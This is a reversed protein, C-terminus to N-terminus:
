FEEELGVGSLAYRVQESDFGRTMLFRMQRTKEKFKEQPSKAKLVLGFRKERVSQALSFWDIECMAFLESILTNDLGKQQLQYRIKQPGQGRDAQYRIMSQAYRTDDLYGREQLQELVEHVVLTEHGKNLLKAKLEQYSHDRRSLLSVAQHMPNPLKKSSEM